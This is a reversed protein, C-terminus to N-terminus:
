ILSNPRIFPKFERSALIAYFHRMYTPDGGSAKHGVICNHLDAYLWYAQMFNMFMGYYTVWDEGSAFFMGMGNSRAMLLYKKERRACFLEVQDLLNKEILTWKDEPSSLNGYSIDVLIQEVMNALDDPGSVAVWNHGLQKRKRAFISERAM